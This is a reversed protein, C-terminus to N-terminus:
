LWRRWIIEYVVKIWRRADITVRHHLVSTSLNLVAIKGM